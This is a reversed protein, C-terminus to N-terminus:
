LWSEDFSRKAVVLENIKGSIALDIIKRLGKKNLNMGSGIDEIMIHKPYNDKILKKQRQLDEIQGRSSVRVYSLNLKKKEKDLDDLNQIM